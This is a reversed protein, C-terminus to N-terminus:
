IVVLSMLYPEIETLLTEQTPTSVVVNVFGTGKQAVYMAGHVNNPMTFELRGILRGDPQAFVQNSMATLEGVVLQQQKAFMYHALDIAALQNDIAATIFTDGNPGTWTWAADALANSSPPNPSWLPSVTVAWGGQSFYAVGGAPPLGATSVVTPVANPIDPSALALAGPQNGSAVGEPSQDANSHAIQYRRYSEGVGAVAGLALLLGVSYRLAPSKRSRSKRASAAIPTGVATVFGQRSGADLWKASHSASNGSNPGYVSQTRESQLRATPEREDLASGTNASPEFSQV